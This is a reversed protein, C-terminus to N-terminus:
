GRALELFARVVGVARRIGGITFLFGVAGFIVPLNVWSTMVGLNNDLWEVAGVMTGPGNGVLWVPFSVVPVLNLVWFFLNGFTNLFFDTLM